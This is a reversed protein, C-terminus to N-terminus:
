RRRGQRRYAVVGRAAIWLGSQSILSSGPRCDVTETDEATRLRIGGQGSRAEATHNVVSTTADPRRLEHLVSIPCLVVQEAPQEEVQTWARTMRDLLFVRRSCM